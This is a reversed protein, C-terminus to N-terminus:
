PYSYLSHSPILIFPIHHSQFLSSPPPPTQFTPQVSNRCYVRKPMVMMTQSTNFSRRVLRTDTLWSIDHCCIMHYSTICYSTIAWRKKWRRSWRPRPMWSLTRSRRRNRLWLKAANLKKFKMTRLESHIRLKELANTMEDGSHNSSNLIAYSAASYTSCRSDLDKASISWKRDRNKDISRDIVEQAQTTTQRLWQSFLVQWNWWLLYFTLSSQLYPRLITIFTYVDAM